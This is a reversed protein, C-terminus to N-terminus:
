PLVEELRLQYTSLSIARTTDNRGANDDSLRMVVQAGGTKLDQVVVAERINPAVFAQGYGNLDTGTEFLILHARGPSTGLSEGAWLIGTLNPALGDFSVRNYAGGVLVPQGAGEFFGGGVQVAIKEATFIDFIFGEETGIELPAGFDVTVNIQEDESIFPIGVNEGLLDEGAETLLFVGDPFILLATEFDFAFLLNEELGMPVPEETTLLGEEETMDKFDYRDTFFTSGIEEAYDDMSQTIPRTKMRRFDPVLVKGTPGNLRAILSEITRARGQDLRFDLTALWREGGRPFAQIQGNMGDFIGSFPRIFYVQQIPYINEPWDEASM